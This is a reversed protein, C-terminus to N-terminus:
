RNLASRGAKSCLGSRRVSWADVISRELLQGGAGLMHWGFGALWCREHLTRLFRDIDAGDKVLVYVHLIRRFGAAGRRYGPPVFRRQDIASGRPCRRTAGSRDVSARGLLGGLAKIRDKVETPMGKIDYDLLAYAPAGARYELYDGSRAIAGPNAELKGKTVVTVEGRVGVRLRGLALAQDSGCGGVLDAFDYVGCAVTRSASGRSMVCESGDALVKGDVLSIKKSLCGGNPKTFITIEVEAGRTREAFRLFPNDESAIQDLKQM